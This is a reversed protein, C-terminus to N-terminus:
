ASGCTVTTSTPSSGFRATAAGFRTRSCTRLRRSSGCPIRSSACAPRRARMSGRGADAARREFREVVRALIEEVSTSSARVPLRGDDSRAIVLLDEALQALRDTEEPTRFEHGADSVFRRERALADELRALMANLTEGLRSIEDSGQPVALRQGPSTASVAAARARMAEVPRLVAAALGYGALSVLALAILGGALLITALSALAEDRDDVASGVVVVLRERGTDVATAFVRAPDDLERSAPRDVFLSKERARALDDRSLLPRGLSSPAADLPRGNEGLVQTFSEEREVLDGYADLGRGKRRVLASM